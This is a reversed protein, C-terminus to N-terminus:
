AVPGVPEAGLRHVAGLVREGALDAAQRVEAGLQGLDLVVQEVRLEAERLAGPEVAEAEVRHLVDLVLEPLAVAAVRARPDLGSKKRSASTQPPEAVTSSSYKAGSSISAPKSKVKLPLQSLKTCPLPRVM